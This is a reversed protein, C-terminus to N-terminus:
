YRITSSTREGLRYPDPSLAIMIREAANKFDFPVSYGLGPAYLSGMSGTFNSGGAVDFEYIINGRGQSQEKAADAEKSDGRTNKAELDIVRVHLKVRSQGANFGLLGRKYPNGADVLVFDGTVLWGVKGIEDDKLVLAPAIKNLENRLDIAFEAPALSRRIPREGLGGAHHGIYDTYTVDFPRIYIAKPNTAGTAVDTHVVKMGACSTMLLATCLAILRNKMFTNNSKGM